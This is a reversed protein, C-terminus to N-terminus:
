DFRLLVRAVAERPTLLRRRYVWPQCGSYGIPSGVVQVRWASASVSPFPPTLAVRVDQEEFRWAALYGFSRRAARIDPCAIPKGGMRSLARAISDAAAFAAASDSVRWMHSLQSVRGSVRDVTLQAIPLDEPYPSPTYCHRWATDPVNRCTRTRHQTADLGVQRLMRHRQRNVTWTWAGAATIAFGAALLLVTRLVGPHMRLDHHSLM